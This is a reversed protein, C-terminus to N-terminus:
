FKTNICRNKETSRQTIKEDTLIKIRAKQM